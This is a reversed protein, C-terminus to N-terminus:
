MNAGSTLYNTFAVMELQGDSLLHAREEPSLIEALDIDQVMLKAVTPGFCRIILRKSHPTDSDAYFGDLFPFLKQIEAMNLRSAEQLTQKYELSAKDPTQQLKELLAGSQPSEFMVYPGGTLRDAHGECSGVTHIGLMHFAAVTDLIGPDMLTGLRDALNSVEEKAKTFDDM